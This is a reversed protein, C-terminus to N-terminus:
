AAAAGRRAVALLHVRLRAAWFNRPVGRPVALARARAASGHHDGVGMDDLRHSRRPLPRQRADRWAAAAGHAALRLVRRPPRRPGDAMAGRVCVCARVRVCACARVGCARVGCVCAFAVGRVCTLTYMWMRMCTYSTCAHISCMHVARLMSAPAPAPSAPCALPARGGRACLMFAPCPAPLPPPLARGTPHSAPPDHAAHRRPPAPPAGGRYRRLSRATQDPRSDPGTSDRVALSVGSAYHFVISKALTGAYVFLLLGACLLAVGSWRQLSAGERSGHEGRLASSLSPRGERFWEVTVNAGFPTSARVAVCSPYFPSFAVDISDGEKRWMARLASHLEQLKEAPGDAHFAARVQEEATLGSTVGTLWTDESASKVEVTKGLREGRVRARQVDFLRMLGGAMFAQASLPANHVCLVQPAREGEGSLVVDHHCHPRGRSPSGTNNCLYDPAARVGGAGVAILIRLPLAHM